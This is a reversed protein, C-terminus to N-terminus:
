RRRGSSTPPAVAPAPSIVLLTVTGAVAGGLMLAYAVYLPAGSGQLIVDGEAPNVLLAVLVVVLWGLFPLVGGALRGVLARALTPLAINGLVALVVCVPVILGGVYLPVLFLELVALLAACAVLLAVGAWEIPGPPGDEPETMPAPSRAGPSAQSM